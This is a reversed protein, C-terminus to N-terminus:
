EHEEGGSGSITALVSWGLAKIIHAAMQPWNQLLGYILVLYLSVVLNAISLLHFLSIM